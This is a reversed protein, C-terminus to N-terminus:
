GSATNDRLWRGVGVATLFTGLGVGAVLGFHAVVVARVEESALATLVIALGAKWVDIAVRKLIPKIDAAFFAFSPSFKSRLSVM